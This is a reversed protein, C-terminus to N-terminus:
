AAALRVAASRANWGASAYLELMRDFIADWRFQMAHLRAAEGMRARLDADSALLRCADAFEARDRAVIGTVGDIVSEKAGLADMVIVPLGSSMAQLVVNGFSDTESPFVFFDASAFERSLRIGTIKGTFRASPLMRQVDQLQPGDGAITLSCETWNGFIPVLKDLGKEAAVRGVYLAHVEGDCNRTRHHPSFVDHDVGRGLIATPASYRSALLDQVPVSPALILDAKGYYWDLLIRAMREAVIGMRVRAYLDVM